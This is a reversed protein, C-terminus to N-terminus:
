ADGRLGLAIVVVALIGLFILPEANTQTVGWVVSMIGGGIIVGATKFMGGLILIPIFFVFIMIVKSVISMDTSSGFTYEGAPLWAYFTETDYDYHYPVANGDSNEIRLMTYNEVTYPIKILVKAGEFNGYGDPFAVTLGESDGSLDVNDRNRKYRQYESTHVVDVNNDKLLDVFWTFATINCGYFVADSDIIAHFYPTIFCNKGYLAAPAMRMIRYAGYYPAGETGINFNPCDADIRSNSDYPSAIVSYHDWAVQDTTFNRGNYPYVLGSVTVHANDELLQKSLSFEQELEEETLTLANTHYYSHSWVEWGKYYLYGINGYTLRNVNGVVSVYVNTTAPLTGLIPYAVTLDHINSDDFMISVKPEEDTFLAPRILPVKQAVMLNDFTANAICDIGPFGFNIFGLGSFSASANQRIIGNLYLHIIQTDFDYSLRVSHWENYPLYHHTSYFVLDFYNDNERTLQIVHTTVNGGGWGYNLQIGHAASSMASVNVDFSFDVIGSQVSTGTNLTLKPYGILTGDKTINMVNGHGMAQSVTITLNNVNTTNHTNQYGMVPLEGVTDKEFDDLFLTDYDVLAGTDVNYLFTPNTPDAASVLSLLPISLMCAIILFSIFKNNLFPGRSRQVKDKVM